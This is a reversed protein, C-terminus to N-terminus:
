RVSDGETLWALARDYQALSEFLSNYAFESGPAAPAFTLGDRALNMVLETVTDGRAAWKGTAYKAATPSQLTRITDRLTNLYRRAQIWHTPTMDHVSEELTKQLEALTSQLQDILKADVRKGSMSQKIAQGMLKDMRKRGADFFGHSEIAFPWTLKPGERLLGQGFSSGDTVNIRTLIAPDLLITPGPGYKSHVDQIHRLLTNLARGSRIDVAPPNNRARELEVQWQRARMDEATPRNAQEYRWQEWAQRRTELQAQRAQERALRAQQVAILYQGQADLVHAAGRLYGYTPDMWGWGSGWGYRGWGFGGHYRPFRNFGGHFVPQNVILQPGNARAGIRTSAPPQNAMNPTGRFQAHLPCASLALVAASALAARMLASHSFSIVTIESDSTGAKL